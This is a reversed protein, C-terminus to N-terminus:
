GRPRRQLAPASRIYAGHREIEGIALHEILQAISAPQGGELLTAQQALQEDTLLRYAQAAKAGNHSLLTVTEELTVNAFEEAHRANIADLKAPPMPPHPQGDAADQIVRVIAAEGEAIHHAQVGVTWGTDTCIAQWREPSCQVIMAILQENAQEFRWALARARASMAGDGPPEPRSGEEGHITEVGYKAHLTLMKEMDPRAGPPFSAALERLFAVSEASIVILMTGRGPSVNEFRHPAGSPAHFVTGPGGQFTSVGREDRQTFSFEGSLVYFSENGPHAHLPPGGGPAVSITALAYAGNTESGTIQVIIEEDFIRLGEGEGPRVLSCRVNVLSTVM